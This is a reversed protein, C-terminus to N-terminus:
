SLSQCMSVSFPVPPGNNPLDLVARFVEESMVDYTTHNGTTHWVPITARDLWAM